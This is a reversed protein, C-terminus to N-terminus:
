PANEVGHGGTPSTSPLRRARRGIGYVGAGVLALGLLLLLNYTEWLIIVGGCAVIAVSVGLPWYTRPPEPSSTGTPPPAM